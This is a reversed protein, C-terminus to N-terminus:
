KFIYGPIYMPIGFLVAFFDSYATVRGVNSCVLRLKLANGSYWDARYPSPVEPELVIPFKM